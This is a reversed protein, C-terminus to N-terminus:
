DELVEKYLTKFFDINEVVQITAILGWSRTVFM